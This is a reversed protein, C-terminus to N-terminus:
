ARRQEGIFADSLFASSELVASVLGAALNSRVVGLADAKVSDGLSIRLLGIDFNGHLVACCGTPDEDITYQLM